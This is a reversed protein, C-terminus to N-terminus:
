GSSTRSSLFEIVLLVTQSLLLIIIVWELMHGTRAVMFESSRQSCLEYIREQAELKGDALELREAMRLRERLREGVQSALTPPHVHPVLVHPTLRELRARMAVTQQFREALEERLGVDREGFEFALRSDARVHDWQRDLQQELARLEFEGSTAAVAARCVTPLREPAAVAIIRNPQWVVHAGHLTLLVSRVHSNVPTGHEEMHTQWSQVLELDSEGGGPVSLLLIRDPASPVPAALSAETRRLVVAKYRVGPSEWWVQADASPNEVFALELLDAGAPFSFPEPSVGSM